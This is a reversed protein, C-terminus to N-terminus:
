RETLRNEYVWTSQLQGSNIWEIEYQPENPTRFSVCIVRCDLDTYHDFYVHDGLNFKHKLNIM